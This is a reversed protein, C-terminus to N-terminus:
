RRETFLMSLYMKAVVVREGFVNEVNLSGPSSDDVIAVCEGFDLGEQEKLIVALGHGVPALCERPVFGSALTIPDMASVWTHDPPEMLFVSKGSTCSLENHDGAAHDRVVHAL